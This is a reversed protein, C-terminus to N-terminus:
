LEPFLHCSFFTAKSREAVMDGLQSTRCCSICADTHWMQVCHMGNHYMAILNLKSTGAAPEETPTAGDVSYELAYGLESSLAARTSPENLVDKTVSDTVFRHGQQLFAEDLPGLRSGGSYYYGEM